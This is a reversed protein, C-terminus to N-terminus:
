KNPTHKDVDSLAINHRKFYYDRIHVGVPMDYQSIDHGKDYAYRKIRDLQDKSIWELFKGGAAIAAQQVDYPNPNSHSEKLLKELYAEISIWQEEVMRPIELDRSIEIGADTLTVPSKSKAFQNKSQRTLEISAKIVSIDDKIADIKADIKDIYHIKVGFVSVRNVAWVAVALLSLVIAFAGGNSKLLDFLIDM